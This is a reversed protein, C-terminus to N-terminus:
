WYISYIQDIYFTPTTASPSDYTQDADSWLGHFFFVFHRTSTYASWYISYIQDIYFTPTTASPSDCMGGSPANCIIKFTWTGAGVCGANLYQLRRSADAFGAKLLESKALDM